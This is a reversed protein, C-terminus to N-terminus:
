IDSHYGSNVNVGTDRPYFGCATIILGFRTSSFDASFFMGWVFRVLRVESRDGIGTGFTLDPTELIKFIPFQWGNSLHVLNESAPTFSAGNTAAADVFLLLRMAPLEAYTPTLYLFTRLRHVSSLDIPGLLNQQVDIIIQSSSPTVRRVGIAGQILKSDEVASNVDPAWRSLNNFPLIGQLSGSRFQDYFEVVITASAVTRKDEGLEAVARASVFGKRVFNQFSSDVRLTYDLAELADRLQDKRGQVDIIQLQFTMTGPKQSPEETGEVIPAFVQAFPLQSESIKDFPTLGIQRNDGASVIGDSMLNLVFQMVNRELSM